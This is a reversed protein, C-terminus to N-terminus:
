YATFTVRTYVVEFGFREYNRQSASGPLTCAAAMDCGQASAGNLRAAITERHLGRRRFRAIASDAFLVTLGQGATMAAGAAAQGEDFALYCDAGPMAIVARGVDMEEESLSGNEFFGLGVTRAWLDEEGGTARRVRPAPVTEWGALRRALVNNFETVRYGRGGLADLLGPDALPCIDIKVAAGRTRFFAEVADLEREGVPGNLGLGVAQTLPSDRGAFIACGGAAEFVAGSDAPACGRAIATEIREIRRALAADAFLM